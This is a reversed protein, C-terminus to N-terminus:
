LIFEIQIKTSHFNQCYRGVQYITSLYSTELDVSCKPFFAPPYERPSRSLLCDNKLTATRCWSFVQHLLRATTDIIMTVVLLRPMLRTILLDQLTSAKHHHHHHLRIPEVFSCIITHSIVTGNQKEVIGAWQQHCNKLAIMKHTLWLRLWLHGSGSHHPELKGLMTIIMTSSMWRVAQPINLVMYLKKPM